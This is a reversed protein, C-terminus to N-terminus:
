CVDAVEAPALVQRVHEVLETLRFPKALVLDAGARHSAAVHDNGVHGSVVIVAGAFGDARLTTTADLGDTDPLGRDMVVVDVAHEAVLSRAEAGTGATLVEFGARVLVLSMVHVLDPEDEVLLVTTTVDFVSDNFDM